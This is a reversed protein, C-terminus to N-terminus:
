AHYCLLRTPGDTMKRHTKATDRAADLFGDGLLLIGVPTAGSEGSNVLQRGKGCKSWDYRRWLIAAM